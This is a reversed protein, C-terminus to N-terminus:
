KTSNKTQKKKKIKRGNTDLGHPFNLKADKGYYYKAAEDYAQAALRSSKYRGLYITENNVEIQAIWKRKKLPKVGIFRSFPKKVKSQQKRYVESWFSHDAPLGLSEPDLRFFSGYGSKFRPFFQSFLYSFRVLDMETDTKECYIGYVTTLAVARSGAKIENNFIFARIPTIGTIVRTKKKSGNLAKDILSQLEDDETM